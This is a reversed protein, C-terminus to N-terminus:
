AARRAEREFRAVRAQDRAFERPLVKLAVRRGLRADQALYVVGMGGAGLKSLIKYQAILQGIMGCVVRRWRMTPRAWWSTLGGLGGMVLTDRPWKPAVEM